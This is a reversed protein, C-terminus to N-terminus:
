ILSTVRSKPRNQIRAQRRVLYLRLAVNGIMNKKHDIPPHRALQYAVHGGLRRIKGCKRNQSFCMLFRFEPVFVSELFDPLDDIRGM